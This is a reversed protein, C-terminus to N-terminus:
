RAGAMSTVRELAAEASTAKEAATAQLRRARVSVEDSVTEVAIWWVFAALLVTGRAVSESRGM